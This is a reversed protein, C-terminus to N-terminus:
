YIFLAAHILVIAGLGITLVQLMAARERKEQTTMRM